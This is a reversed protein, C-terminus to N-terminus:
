IQNIINFLVCGMKNLSSPSCKDPTDKITHWYPYDFDIFLVTPINLEMLQIHDDMVNYKPETSFNAPYINNAIKYAKEAFKGGYSLYNYEPHVNLDKDGIMDIVIAYNIAPLYFNNKLYKSGLFMRETGPGYDEADFFVLIVNHKKYKVKNLYNALELLVAVGSAGDNAGTVPKKLNSKNPDKDAQPRTDWHAGLLIWDKANNNKTGIINFFKKNDFFFQQISVSYDNKKLISEIFDGCKEHATNPPFRYGFGCQTKLYEYARKSDFSYSKNASFFFIFIFIILILYYRHKKIGSM